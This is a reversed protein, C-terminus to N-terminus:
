KQIKTLHAPLKLQILVVLYTTVASMVTCVLPLSLDFVGFASVAIRRHLLNMSLSRLQQSIQSDLSEYNIFRSVLTGTRLTEEVTSSCPYVLVLMRLFHGSLWLFQVFLFVSVLPATANEPANPAAIGLVIHVIFYTTIVLRMLLGLMNCLLFLSYQHAVSEVCQCLLDYAVALRRLARSRRDTDAVRARVEAASYEVLFEKLEANITRFRELVGSVDDVFMAERMYTIIYSVYSPLTNLAYEEDEFLKCFLDLVEVFVLIMIFALLCRPTEYTRPTLLSDVRRLQAALRVVLHPTAAAQLICVAAIISISAMDFMAVFLQTPVRKGSLVLTANDDASEDQDLIGSDRYRRAVKIATWTVVFTVLALSYLLWGLSPAM